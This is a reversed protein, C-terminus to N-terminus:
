KIIIESHGGKRKKPSAVEIIDYPELKIDEAKGKLIKGFDIEIEERDKTGPVLRYIRTLNKAKSFFNARKIKIGGAQEIAQTLTLTETLIIGKADIVNGLVYVKPTEKVASEQAQINLGLGILMVFIILFNKMKNKWESGNMEARKLM